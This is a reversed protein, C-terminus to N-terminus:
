KKDTYYILDTTADSYVKCLLQKDPHNDCWEQLAMMVIAWDYARNTGNSVALFNKGNDYLTPSEAATEKQIEEKAQNVEEAPSSECGGLFIPMVLMILVLTGMIRIKM